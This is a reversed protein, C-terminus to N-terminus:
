LTGPPVVAELPFMLFWHELLGLFGMTGILVAGIRKWRPLRDDLSQRLIAWGIITILTVSVAFLPNWTAETMFPRLFSVSDPILDASTNQVGLFVNLKASEHCAYLLIFVHFGVPNRVRRAQRIAVVVLGFALLEHFILLELVQLFSAVSPGLGIPPLGEPGVPPGVILGSYLSSKVFGWVMLGATFSLYTAAVGVRDGNRFLWVAGLLALSFSITAVWPGAGEVFNFFILVATTAWWIALSAFAAGVIERTTLRAEPARAPAAIPRMPSRTTTM